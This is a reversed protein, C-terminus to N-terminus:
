CMHSSLVSDVCLLSDDFDPFMPHLSAIRPDVSDDGSPHQQPPLTDVEQVVPSPLPSLTIM